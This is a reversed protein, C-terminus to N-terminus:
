NEEQSLIIDAVEKTIPTCEAVPVWEKTTVKGGWSTKATVQMEIRINEANFSANNIVQGAKNKYLVWERM